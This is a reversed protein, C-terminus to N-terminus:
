NTYMGGTALIIAEFTGKEIRKSSIHIKIEESEIASTLLNQDNDHVETEIKM